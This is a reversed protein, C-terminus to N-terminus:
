CAGWRAPWTVLAGVNSGSNFIGTALARERAPFWESVTKIAAPFNGGQALGLAFRVFGFGSVTRVAAHAMAAISWLAVAVPYGVRVGVVDMLRGALLYGAAYAVQFWFVINGYDIESWGLERTLEPKLIGIIPRDIYNITTAFFLLACIWWRFWGARPPGAHTVPRHGHDSKAIAPQM